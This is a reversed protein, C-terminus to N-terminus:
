ARLYIQMIQINIDFRIVGIQALEYFFLLQGASQESESMIKKLNMM